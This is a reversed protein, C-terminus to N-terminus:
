NSGRFIVNKFYWSSSTKLRYYVKYIPRRSVKGANESGKLVQGCVDLFCVCLRFVLM